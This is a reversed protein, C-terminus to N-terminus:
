QKIKRLDSNVKSFLYKNIKGPPVYVMSRPVRKELSYFLNAILIVRFM